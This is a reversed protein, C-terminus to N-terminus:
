FGSLQRDLFCKLSRLYYAAFNHQSAQCYIINCVGHASNNPMNIIQDYKKELCKKGIGFWM